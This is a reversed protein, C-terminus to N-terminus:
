VGEQAAGRRFHKYLIPILALLSLGIVPLLVRPELFKAAIDGKDEVVAGVADGLGAYVISAPIIGLSTAALFTGLSVGLFAPVLNVLWFPFLPVLRLLLLYSFANRRFGAELRHLFPGAHAKLIDGLASRAIVFICTAGLTAGVVIYAAGLVPGFLFGGAISLVSAAPISLATVVAYVVVFVLPALAGLHEVEALLWERNAALTDLTLFSDVRFLLAAAIAAAVLALPLWRSWIARGMGVRMIISALPPAAGERDREIL